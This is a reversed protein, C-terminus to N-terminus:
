GAWLVGAAVIILTGLVMALTYFPVLGIQLPGLSRGLAPPVKGIANILGDILLEDVKSCIWAVMRLPMVILFHYLEDVYFKHYSLKYPSVFNGVQFPAVIVLTLFSLVQGLLTAAWGLHLRNAIARLGGGTSLFRPVRLEAFGEFDMLSRLWRVEQHGRLYLFTAVLIGALAIVGSTAAVDLHFVFPARTAAVGGAALSPTWGLFENFLHQPEQRWTQDLLVGITIAGMALVLM